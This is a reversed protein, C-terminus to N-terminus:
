SYSPGPRFVREGMRTTVLKAGIGPSGPLANASFAEDSFLKPPLGVERAFVQIFRRHSLGVRQAAERITQESDARMFCSLAFRVAFHHEMPRFLHDLLAKELLCFRETPGQAACLRERLERAARGWLAELDVHTDALESAAEGLFPFAGAPRFHVGVVCAHQRADIVFPRTYTGSVIAGSFRRCHEPRTSDYIRFEDEKLNIVLEVTGSSVIRERFHPPSDHIQWFREVFDGLPRVPSSFVYNM